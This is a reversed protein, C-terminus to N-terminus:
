RILGGTVSMDGLRVYFLVIGGLLHGLLDLDRGLGACALHRDEVRELADQLQREHVVTEGAAQAFGGLGEVSSLRVHADEVLCALLLGVLLQDDRQAGLM